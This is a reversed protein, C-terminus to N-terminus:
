VPRSVARRRRRRVATDARDAGLGTLRAPV